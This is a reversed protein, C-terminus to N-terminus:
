PLSLLRWTVLPAVRSWPASLRRTAKVTSEVPAELELLLM